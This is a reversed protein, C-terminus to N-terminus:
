SELGQLVQDKIEETKKNREEAKQNKEEAKKNKEEISM